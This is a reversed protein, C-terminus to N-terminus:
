DDEESEEEAEKLWNIMPAAQERVTPQVGETSESWALISGEELIDKDYLDKLVLPVKSLQASQMGFFREICALLALQESDSKVFEALMTSKAKMESALDVEPSFTASFLATIFAKGDPNKKKLQRIAETSGDKLSMSDRLNGILEEMVSDKPLMEERRRRVAEQSTDSLWVVEDDKKKSGKKPKEIVPEEEEEEENEKEKEKDDEKEKKSKKVAKDAAKNGDFSNGGKVPPHNIIFRKFKEDTIKLESNGGCARCNGYVSNKEPTILIEPLGCVPCLLVENIFLLMIKSLDKADQEGSIFAQQREQKKADFKAQTGIYYGMFTGIYSPPVQMDKAVDLINTLTTKIMKSKGVVRIQLQRTKYRSGPDNPVLTLVKPKVSSEPIVYPIV